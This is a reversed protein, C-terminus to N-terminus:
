KVRERHFRKKEPYKHKLENMRSLFEDLEHPRVDFIGSDKAWQPAAEEEAQHIISNNECICQYGMEGDFRPRSSLLKEDIPVTTLGMSNMEIGEVPGRVEIAVTDKCKLCDVVYVEPYSKIYFDLTKQAHATPVSPRIIM